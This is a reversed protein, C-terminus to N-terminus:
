TEIRGSTDVNALPPGQQPVTRINIKRSVHTQPIVKKTYWDMYDYDDRETESGYDEEGKHHYIKKSIDLMKMSQQKVLKRLGSQPSSIGTIRSIMKEWNQRMPEKRNLEAKVYEFIFNEIIPEDYVGEFDWV